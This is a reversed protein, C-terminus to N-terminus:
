EYKVGRPLNRKYIYLMSIINNEIVFTAVYGKFILDRINEDNYRQNKRYAFPSFPIKEISEFLEDKFKEARNLGDKSIIFSLIQELDDCFDDSLVVKM